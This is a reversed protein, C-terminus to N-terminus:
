KKTPVFSNSDIMQLKAESSKDPFNGNNKTIKRDQKITQNPKNIIKIENGEEKSEINKAVKQNQNPKGIIKIESSEEKSKINKAVNQNQKITQNPKNIIQITNNEEKSEVNQNQKMYQNPKDIIKIAINGEKSKVNSTKNENLNSVQRFEKSNPTDEKKCSKFVTEEQTICNKKTNSDEKINHPHSQVGNVTINEDHNTEKREM